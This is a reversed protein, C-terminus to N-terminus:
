VSIRSGKQLLMMMAMAMLLYNVLVIYDSEKCDDFQM